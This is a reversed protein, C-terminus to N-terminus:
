ADARLPKLLPFLERDADPYADLLVRAFVAADDKAYDALLGTIIKKAVEGQQPDAFLTALPTKLRSAQPRLVEQYQGVFVLNQLVLQAAVFDATKPDSWATGEGEEIAAEWGALLCAAHLRR